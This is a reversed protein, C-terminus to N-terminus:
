CGSTSAGTNTRIDAISRLEFLIYECHTKSDTVWLRIEARDQDAIIFRKLAAGMFALSGSLQASYGLCAVLRRDAHWPM